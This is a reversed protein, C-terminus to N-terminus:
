IVVAWAAVRRRVRARSGVTADLILQTLQPENTTQSWAAQVNRRRRRRRAVLLVNITELNILRM